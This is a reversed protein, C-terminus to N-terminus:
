GARIRIWQSLLWKEGRTPATGAHLTRRDPTGDPELNWFVLADGKRGKFAKGLLPFATEGAEYDENLYVLLTMARQGRLAVDKAHGPVNVDLFDYHPAFQEGVKYHLVHTVEVGSPPVDALAVIRALVFGLM